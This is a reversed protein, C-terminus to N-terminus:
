STWADRAVLLLTSESHQSTPKLPRDDNLSPSTPAVVALHRSNPSTLGASDLLQQQQQQHHHHHQISKHHDDVSVVTAPLHGRCVSCRVLWSPQDAGGGGCRCETAVPLPFAARPSSSTMRRRRRATLAYLAIIAALTLLVAACLPVAVMVVTQLCLSSSSSSSSSADDQQRQLQHQVDTSVVIAYM